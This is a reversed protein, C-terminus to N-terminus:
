NVDLLQESNAIEGYRKSRNGAFIFIPNVWFVSTITTNVLINAEILESLALKYTNYSVDFEKRYRDENIFIFAEGYNISYILWLFLTKTRPPLKGIIKRNDVKTYVKCFARDDRQKIEFTNLLNEITEVNKIKDIEFQPLLFWENLVHYKSYSNHLLQEVISNAFFFKLIELKNKNGTQLMNVRKEVNNKTFGIKTHTGDTIFYVFGDTDNVYITNCKSDLIPSMFPNIENRLDIEPIIRKRGM